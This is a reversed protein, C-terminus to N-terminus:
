IFGLDKTRVWGENGNSLKILVFENDTEVVRIKSGEHLRFKIFSKELPESRVPTEKVLVVAFAQKNNERIIMRGLGYFVISLILLLVGIPILVVRFRSQVLISVTILIAASFSFFVSIWGWQKETLRYVMGQKFTQIFFNENFEIKDTTKSYCINLNHKVNADQPNLKNAKEYYLIAKGLNGLRYHINGFNYYFDSSKYGDSEISTYIKLAEDFKKNNYFDEAKQLEEKLHLANDSFLFVSSLLWGAILLSIKM